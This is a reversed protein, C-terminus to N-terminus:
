INAALAQADLRGREDFPTAIPPYVGELKITGRM